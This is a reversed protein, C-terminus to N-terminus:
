SEEVIQKTRGMMDIDDKYGLRTMINYINITM